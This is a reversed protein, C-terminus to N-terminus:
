EFAPGRREVRRLLTQATINSLYIKDDTLIVTKAERLDGVVKKDVRRQHYLYRLDPSTELLDRSFLGIILREPVLLDHGIHLYM